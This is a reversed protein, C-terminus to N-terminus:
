AELEYKVYSEVINNSDLQFRYIYKNNIQTYISGNFWYIQEIVADSTIDEEAINCSILNSDSKGTTIMSILAQTYEDKNQINVERSQNTIEVINNDNNNNQNSCGSLALLSIVLLLILKNRM